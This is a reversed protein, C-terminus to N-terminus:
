GSGSSSSRGPLLGHEAVTRVVESRAASCGRACTTSSRAPASARASPWSPCRSCAREVSMDRMFSGQVSGAPGAVAGSEHLAAIEEASFGAGALVEDTHEGLAPGPRGADSRGAHPQAQDAGRAAEGAARGRAARARGGDGARAVLEHSSCRTSTSCRSWAATTSPPSSAGSSAPAPPSSRARGGRHADRARRTSRTTSCTRAGSARAGPRGSSRSWRASRSTATPAATPGTAPSRAPWSSSAAARRRPGTAFMEAAVLALWSLAGDFMSCDVFQGEGSRERERLAVLIGIAAMLAGGGIDAIQGASQVPPGDAEGTLGLLGNLGLYNMDHGSRDRNPGDQGYGTIACYVLRPNEQGLREYGVGLRDLVGPRFSELLVDADRALRLLVEKGADIKLDVRISRKGRNLALFLAGRATQDAGEYYPPSWRVYDGMGTDEVKIVDAGFDALLLSCFGGPLLRSLDLVRLGDLPLTMAGGPLQIGLLARAEEVTAPRRGVDETMERAKAILEGNSRAMDGDPLYFNDELGVRISGGLTLAAAVLMWQERGIGIM